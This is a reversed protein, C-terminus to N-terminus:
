RVVPQSKESIAPCIICGQLNLKHQIEGYGVSRELDEEEGSGEM